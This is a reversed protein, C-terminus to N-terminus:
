RRGEQRTPAAAPNGELRDLESRVLKQVRSKAVYLTGVPIGLQAAVDVGALGNLATLRFVEWHLDAVQPCCAAM